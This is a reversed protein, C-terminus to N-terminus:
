DGKEKHEQSSLSVSKILAFVSQDVELNLQSLSARTIRAGIQQQGITLKLHAYPTLGQSEIHKIKCQIVNQLSVGQPKTTAISVDQNHILLRLVSQNDVLPNDSRPLVWTTGEVDVHALQFHPDYHQLTGELVCVDEELPTESLVQATPGQTVLTGAQMVFVWDALQIVELNTHSVLIVNIDHQAVLNSLCQMIVSKSQQDLASFPEDLLLLEPGSLIARALAVRQREGGSLVDVPSTLLHELGLQDITQEITLLSKHQRKEAYRLNDIVNLHGFLRADQFVMAVPRKYSPMLHKSNQWVESGFQIEGAVKEIGALAHLLTTKGCGSPGILACIQNPLGDLAVKLTFHNLPKSISVNLM